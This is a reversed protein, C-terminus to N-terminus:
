MVTEFSGDSYRIVIAGSDNSITAFSTGAHKIDGSITTETELMTEALSLTVGNHNSLTASSDGEYDGNSGDFGGQYVVNLQKGGYSLKLASDATDLGTRSANFEVKVDDNIGDLNLEFVISLSAMIYDDEADNFQCDNSYGTDSTDDAVEECNVDVNDITAALTASLSDGTTNSFAGALSIEFGDLTYVKTLDRTEGAKLEGVGQYSYSGDKTRKFEGLKLDMNGTFTIQEGSLQAISVELQADINTVSYEYDWTESYSPPFPTETEIRQDNYSLDGSFSGKNINIVLAASAASGTISLAESATDTHSYTTSGSESSEETSVIDTDANLKLAVETEDLTVPQDVALSVINASKSIAVSIGDVEVSSPKDEDPADQYQQYANALAHLGISLAESVINSDTSVAEGALEIQDAFAQQKTSAIGAAGLDRIQKIFAKSVILGDRGVDDPTEGQSSETSGNTEAHAEAASLSTGATNVANSDSVGPVAKVIELLALAEELLEELTIAATNAEERDAIGSDSYQTVFGTFAEEITLTDDEKLMAAVAAASKLNYELAAQTAANVASANTIDIIAQDILRGTIGLRGAVQANSGDAADSANAGSAVKQLTLQAAVDTLPTINVTVRTNSAQPLVASMAFDSALTYSDGFDADGCKALDCRMLTGDAATIEIYIATGAVYASNLALVYSGDAATTVPNALSTTKDVTGTDTIPYANVIGGIVIGKSGAGGIGSPAVPSSSGGGSGCATLGAAIALPLVLKRFKNPTQRM